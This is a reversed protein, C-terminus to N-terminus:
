MYFLARNLPGSGVTDSIPPHSFTGPGLKKMYLLIIAIFVERDEVKYLYDSLKHFATLPTQWVCGCM